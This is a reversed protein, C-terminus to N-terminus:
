EDEEGYTKVKEGAKTVLVYPKKPKKKTADILHQLNGGLKVFLLKDLKSTEGKVVTITYGTVSTKVLCEADMIAHLKAKEIDAQETLLKAELALETYTSLIAEARVQMEPSLELVQEQDQTLAQKM